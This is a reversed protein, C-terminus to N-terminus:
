DYAVAKQKEEDRREYMKQLDRIYQELETRIWQIVHFSDVVPVANPFYNDVYRIYENYMDSILYKVHLREEKPIGMFYPLTVNQKRSIVLDVAEGTVFDQIVLAYKCDADMDLYVEDVSLAEGLPLRKMDVFRNFVNLVYTDSTHFKSAIDTASRYLHRFENVILLETAKTNRCNKDVFSFEEAEDFRCDPNTCRWRRQKLIIKLHFADQLVPHNITRPKVGRSHMLYGCVPCFRTQPRTFLTVTKTPGDEVVSEIEVNSDELNLLSIIDNM